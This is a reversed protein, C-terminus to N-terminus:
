KKQILFSELLDIINQDNQAYAYGLADRGTKDQISMTAGLELLYLTTQYDNNIVAHILATKGDADQANINIQERNILDTFFQKDKRMRVGYMLKQTLLTQRGKKLLVYKKALAKSDIPTQSSFIFTFFFTTLYLKKM